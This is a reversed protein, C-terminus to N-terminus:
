RDEELSLEYRHLLHLAIELREQMQEIKRMQVYVSTPRMKHYHIEDATVGVDMATQTADLSVNDLMEEVELLRESALGRFRGM